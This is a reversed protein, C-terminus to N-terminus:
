PFSVHVGRHTLCEFDLCHLKLSRLTVKILGKQSLAKGTCPVIVALKQETPNRLVGCAVNAEM